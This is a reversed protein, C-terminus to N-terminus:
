KKKIKWIKRYDKMNESQKVCVFFFNTLDVKFFWHSENAKINKLLSFM